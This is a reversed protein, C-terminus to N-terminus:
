KKKFITKYIEHAQKLRSEILDLEKKPTAIGHKSKKQFVHLVFVVEPMKITYVGRYTGSADSEVIEIVKASGFGKMPKANEHQGGTQALYLGYGMADIVDEPLDELDKKSSGVWILEKLKM